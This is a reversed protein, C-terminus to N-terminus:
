QKKFASIFLLILVLGLLSYMLVTFKGSENLYQFILTIVILISSIIPIIRKKMVINNLLANEIHLEQMKM